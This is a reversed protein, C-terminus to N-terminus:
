YESIDAKGDRIVTIRVREQGRKAFFSKQYKKRIQAFQAGHGLNELAMRAVQRSCPANMYEAFREENFKADNTKTLLQIARKKHPITQILVITQYLSFLDILGLAVIYFSKYESISTLFYLNAILTLGALILPYKALRLTTM